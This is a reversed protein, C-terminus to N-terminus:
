EEWDFEEYEIRPYTCRFTERHDCASCEHPYQPPNSALMIGTPKMEGKWCETCERIVRATRVYTKRDRSM